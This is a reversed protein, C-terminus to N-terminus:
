VGAPGTQLPCTLNLRDWLTVKGVEEYLAFLSKHYEAYAKKAKESKAYFEKITTHHARKTPDGREFGLAEVAKHYKDQYAKM